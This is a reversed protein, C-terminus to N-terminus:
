FITIITFYYNFFVIKVFHINDIVQEFIDRLFLVHGECILTCTM